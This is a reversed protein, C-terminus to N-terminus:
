KYINIYQPHAPPYICVTRVESDSDNDDSKVCPSLTKHATDNSGQSLSALWTNNVMMVLAVSLNVRMTYCNVSAMVGMMTLILRCSPFEAATWM